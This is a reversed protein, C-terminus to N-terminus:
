HCHPMDARLANLWSICADNRQQWMASHNASALRDDAIPHRALVNDGSNYVVLAAREREM